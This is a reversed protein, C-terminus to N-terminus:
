EVSKVNSSYIDRQDLLISLRRTAFADHYILQVGEVNDIHQSAVTGDFSVEM